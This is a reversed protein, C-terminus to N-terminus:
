RGWGSRRACTPPSPRATTPPPGERELANQAETILVSVPTRLDHAVDASFRAQQAFATGLSAFTKNLVGTLPQGNLLTFLWFFCRYFASQVGSGWRHSHHRIPM